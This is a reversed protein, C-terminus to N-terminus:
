VKSDSKLGCTNIGRIAYPPCRGLAGTAFPVVGLWAWSGLTHTVALGMLTLGALVRVVRELNGVNRNM